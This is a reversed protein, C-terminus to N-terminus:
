AARGRGYASPLQWGSGARPGHAGAALHLGNRVIVQGQIENDAHPSRSLTASHQDCGPGPCPAHMTSCPATTKMLLMVPESAAVM